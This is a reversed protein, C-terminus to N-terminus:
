FRIRTNDLRRNARQIVGRRDRRRAEDSKSDLILFLTADCSHILQTREFVGTHKASMFAVV